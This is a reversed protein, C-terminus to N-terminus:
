AIRGGRMELVRDAFKAALHPQHLTCLIALGRTKCLAHMLELVQAATDPDLSAVPEDALLIRSEQALARAIAVRQQQGGSLTDARQDTQRELGVAALAARAREIDDRSFVNSAVRWCSAVGLRGALVNALASRRRILNFQQFVVGIERRAHQLPGGSLPHFAKGGLHIEGADPETLRTLCRFLTTKGSGSAGLVAVFEGPALSLSADQLAAADGFKKSLGRASLVESM